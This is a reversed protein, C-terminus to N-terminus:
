GLLYTVIVSMSCVATIAFLSNKILMEVNDDHYIWKSKSREAWGECGLYGHGLDQM